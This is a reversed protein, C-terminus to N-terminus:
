GEHKEIIDSVKVDDGWEAIVFRDTCGNVVGFVIPDPMKFKTAVPQIDAVEFGDFIGREKAVKVAELVDQPPTGAYKEVSQFRLQDCVHSVNRGSRYDYREDGVAPRVTSKRLKDQYAEIQDKTIYRYHEYAQALKQQLTVRRAAQSFGAAVASKYYTTM